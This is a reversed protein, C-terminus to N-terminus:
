RLTRTITGLGGPLGEIVTGVGDECGEERELPVIRCGERVVYCRDWNWAAFSALAASDFAM